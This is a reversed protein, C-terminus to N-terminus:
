TEDDNPREILRRLLDEMDPPEMDLDVESKDYGLTYYTDLRSRSGDSHVEQFTDGPRMNQRLRWYGIQYSCNEILIEGDKVLHYLATYNEDKRNQDVLTFHSM